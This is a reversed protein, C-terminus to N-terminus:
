TPRQWATESCNQTWRHLRQRPLSNRHRNGDSRISPSNAAHSPKGRDDVALPM